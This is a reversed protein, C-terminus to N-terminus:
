FSKNTLIITKWSPLEQLIIYSNYLSMVTVALYAYEFKFLFYLVAKFMNIKLLYLFDSINRRTCEDDESHILTPM